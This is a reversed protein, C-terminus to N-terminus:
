IYLQIIGNKTCPCHPLPCNLFYFSIHACCTQIRLIYQNYYTICHIYNYPVVNNRDLDVVYCKPPEADQFARQGM